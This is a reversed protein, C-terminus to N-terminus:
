GGIFCHYDKGALERQFRKLESCRFDRADSFYTLLFIVVAVLLVAAGVIQVVVHLARLV